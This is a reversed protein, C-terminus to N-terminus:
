RWDVHLAAAMWPLRITRYGWPLHDLLMDFSRGEVKLRWHSEHWELAGPRQLFTERLGAPSTQKLITWQAIIAAVLGEITEDEIASAAFARPLPAEPTLGCLLKNLVLEPEIAADSGTVLRQLLRVGRMAAEVNGFAANRTLELRDFLIPIFRAALVLGANGVYIIDDRVVTGMQLPSPAPPTAAARLVALLQQRDIVAALRTAGDTNAAAALRGATEAPDATPTAALRRALWHRALRVPDVARNDAFLTELLLELDIDQQPRPLGASQWLRDLGDTVAAALEADRGGAALLLRRRMAVDLGAMRRRGASPPVLRDALRRRVDAALPLPLAAVWGASFPGDPLDTLLTDTVANAVAAALARRLAAVASKPLAAAAAVLLARSWRKALWGRDALQRRALAALLLRWRFDLPMTSGDLGAAVAIADLRDLAALAGTAAVDVLSLLRRRAADDLDALRDFAQPGDRLAAAAELTAAPAASATDSGETSAATAAAALARAPRGSTTIAGPHDRDDRLAAGLAQWRAVAGDAVRDPSRAIEDLLWTWRWADAVALARQRAPLTAELAALTARLAAAPGIRALVAWRDADPIAAIRLLGTAVPHLADRLARRAVPSLMAPLAQIWDSRLPGHPIAPRM